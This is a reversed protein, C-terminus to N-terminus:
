MDSYTMQCSFFYTPATAGGTDSIVLMFLANASNAGAINTSDQYYVNLNQKLQIDHVVTQNSGGIVMPKIADYLVHFRNKLLNVSTLSGTVAASTLVDGVTPVSGNAKTDTFLIVRLTSSATIATQLLRLSIKQLTIKDGSRQDINDGQVISQSIAHVTGALTGSTTGVITTLYKVDSYHAMAGRVMARVDQKTVLSKGGNQRAFRKKSVKNLRLPM